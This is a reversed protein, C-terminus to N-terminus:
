RRFTLNLDIFFGSIQPNSSPSVMNREIEPLTGQALMGLIPSAFFAARFESWLRVCEARATAPDSSVFYLEVQPAMTWQSGCNEVRENGVPALEEVGTRVVFLPCDGADVSARRDLETPVGLGQCIAVLAQLIEEARDM